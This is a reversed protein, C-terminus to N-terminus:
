KKQQKAKLLHSHAVTAQETNMLNLRSTKLVCPTADRRQGIVAQPFCLQQMTQQRWTYIVFASLYDCNM